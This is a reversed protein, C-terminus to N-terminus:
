IALSQYFRVSKIFFMPAFCQNGRTKQRQKTCKGRKHSPHALHMTAPKLKVVDGPSADPDKAQNTQTIEKTMDGNNAVMQIRDYQNPNARCCYGYQKPYQPAQPTM